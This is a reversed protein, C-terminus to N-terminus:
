VTVITAYHQCSSSKQGAHRCDGDFEVRLKPTTTKVPFAIETAFAVWAFHDDKKTARNKAFIALGDFTQATTIAEIPLHFLRM